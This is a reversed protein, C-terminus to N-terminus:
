NLYRRLEPYEKLLQARAMERYQMITSRIFEAKGGEPGDSRLRYAESRPSGGTVVDNLFDMCGKNWAPHRAGNGALEAYRSYAGKFEERTLDVIVGDFSVQRKPAAVYVENRLMEGDIPEPNERRSAIPSLADYFAGLGSRYSVPRGWLDRRVPLTGSLGPVRARMADLMSNIELLYPDQQRATEAIAAPVFSGAFRRAFTEARMGPNALAEVTEALGRMYSRSMVNGAITAAFYVAAEDPDAERDEHDMHAAVEAIDAAVGLTMGLPDMRSYSFYRDGLKISYPQWGSRTLTQKEAPNAPGGGTIQGNFAIDAAALMITTGTGMRALALQRRTGGAAVDERFSRFLPAFPSRQAVAYNFINAPTKVFPTVFRLAPFRRIINLWNQAFDGPANTFTSYAAHDAAGIPISDPPNELIAAMRERVQDGGIKGAAAERTAQRYALANREARYGIAKFFEDEAMIARGPLRVISGIVDVFKGFAGDKALRWNEASIAPNRPPDIKGGWGGSENARFTKWALRLADKTGGILGNLMALSEGAKVGAADGPVSGIRGAVTREFVQGLAVTMNSMTNVLHTGPASLLAMVWAEQLSERAIAWPTKAALAELEGAM